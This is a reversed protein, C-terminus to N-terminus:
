VTLAFFLHQRHLGTSAQFDRPRFADGKAPYFYYPQKANGEKRWEYFGSAPVLCRHRKFANRFPAAKEVTEARANINTFKPDPGKSWSPILGWRMFVLEGAADTKRIVMADQTPALNCVPNRGTMKNTFRGCM